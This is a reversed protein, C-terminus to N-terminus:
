CPLIEVLASQLTVADSGTAKQTTIVLTVPASFDASMVAAGYIVSEGNLLGSYNTTQSAL